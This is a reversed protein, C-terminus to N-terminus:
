FHLTLSNVTLLSKDWVTIKRPEASIDKRRLYLQCWVSIDLEVM